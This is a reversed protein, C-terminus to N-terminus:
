RRLGLKAVESAQPLHVEEVVLERSADRRVQSPETAGVEQQELAVMEAAVDGDTEDGDTRKSANVDVQVDGVVAEGGGVRVNKGEEIVLVGSPFCVLAQAEEIVVELEAPGKAPM